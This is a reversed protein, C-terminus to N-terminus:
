SFFLWSNCFCLSYWEYWSCDFCISSSCLSCNSCLYWTLALPLLFKCIRRSNNNITTTTAVWYIWLHKYIYIYMNKKERHHSHSITPIHPCCFVSIKFLFLAGFCLLISIFNFSFIYRCIHMYHIPSQIYLTNDHRFHRFHRTIVLAMWRRTVRSEAM